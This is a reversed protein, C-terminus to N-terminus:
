RVPLGCYEVDDGPGGIGHVRSTHLLHRLAASVTGTSLCKRRRSLLVTMDECERGGHRLRPSHSPMVVSLRLRKTQRQWYPLADTRCAVHPQTPRRHVLSVLLTRKHNSVHVIILIQYLRTHRGPDISEHRATAAHRLTWRGTTAGPLHRQRLPRSSPGAERRSPDCTRRPSETVLLIASLEAVVRQRQHTSRHPRPNLLQEQSSNRSEPDVSRHWMDPVQVNLAPRYPDHTAHGHQHNYQSRRRENREQRLEPSAETERSTRKGRAERSRRKEQINTAVPRGKGHLADEGPTDRRKKEDSSVKRKKKGSFSFSFGWCM